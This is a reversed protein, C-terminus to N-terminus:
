MRGDALDYYESAPPVDAGVTGTASLPPPPPVARQDSHATSNPLVDLNVHRVTPERHLIQPQSQFAPYVPYTPYQVPYPDYHHHYVQPEEEELQVPVVCPCWPPKQPPPGYGFSSMASMTMNSMIVQHMQANQIMMLEILDEKASGPRIPHSLSTYPGPIQQIITPSPSVAAPIIHVGPYITDVAPNSYWANETHWGQSM